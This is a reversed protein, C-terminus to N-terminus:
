LRNASNAPQGGPVSDSVLVLPSHPPPPPSPSSDLPSLSFSPSLSLSKHKIKKNATTLYHWHWQMHFRAEQMPDIMSRLKSPTLSRTLLCSPLMRITLITLTSQIFPPYDLPRPLSQTLPWHTILHILPRDFPCRPARLHTLNRALLKIPPRGEFHVTVPVHILVRCCSSTGGEEGRYFIPFNRWSPTRSIQRSLYM